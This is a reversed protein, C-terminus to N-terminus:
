QLLALLAVGAPPLVVVQGLGDQLELLRGAAEDARGGVGPTQHERVGPEGAGLGVRTAEEFRERHLVHFPQRGLSDHFLDRAAVPLRGSSVSDWPWRNRGVVKRRTLRRYSSVQFVTRLLTTLVFEPSEQITALSQEEEPGHEDDPRHHM